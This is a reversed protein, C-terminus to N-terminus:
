NKNQVDNSGGLLYRNSSMDDRCKEKYIQLLGAQRGLEQRANKNRYAQVITAITESQEKDKSLRKERTVNLIKQYEVFRKEAKELTDYLGFVMPNGDESDDEMRKIHRRVRSINIDTMIMHHLADEEQPTITEVTDMFDVYKHKYYELERDKLEEKVYMYRHNRNFNTKYIELRQEKSLGSLSMDFAMPNSSALAQLADDVTKKAPRGKAKMWGYKKRQRSISELTRSLIRGIEKDSKTKWNHEIFLLEETTYHYNKAM